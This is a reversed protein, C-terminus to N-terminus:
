LKGLLSGFEDAARTPDRGIRGPGNGGSRTSLSWSSIMRSMAMGAMGRSKNSGISSLSSVSPGSLEMAQRFDLDGLGDVDVVESTRSLASVPSDLSPRRICGHEEDEQM